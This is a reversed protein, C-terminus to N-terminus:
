GEKNYWLLRMVAAEKTPQVSNLKTGTKWTFSRMVNLLHTDGNLEVVRPQFGLPEAPPQFGDLTRKSVKTRWSDASRKFGVSGFPAFFKETM